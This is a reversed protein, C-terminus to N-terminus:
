VITPQIYMSRLSTNYGSFRGRFRRDSQRLQRQCRQVVEDWGYPFFLGVGIGIRSGM